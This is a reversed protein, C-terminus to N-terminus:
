SCSSAESLTTRWEAACTMAVGDELEEGLGLEARGRWRGPSRRRRRDRWVKLSASRAAISARMASTTARLSDKTRSSFGRSFPRAVVLLLALEHLDVEDLLEGFGSFRDAEILVAVEGVKATTRM